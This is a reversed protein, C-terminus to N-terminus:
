RRTGSAVLAYDISRLPRHRDARRRLRRAVRADTSVLADRPSEPWSRTEPLQARVPRPLELERGARALTQAIPFAPSERPDDVDKKYAIGLLLVASGRVAKGRENLAHQLRDVVYYPMRSQDRRRARHVQHRRRVRAGEVVPLVSRAPHLARGLGARSQLAHLRVAQDRGRRAGGLRRHGHADYVVKLENVLAINVARFINETIKTAEAAAASSVRVVKGIVQAYLAEALDGADPDCGGVVKPITTTTYHANGPIRASPRSRSSSTRAAVCARRSRPDARVVEDTTGPYTTSELVVLQGPRLAAAIQEAHRTSTPSTRSARRPSRRPCASSSRTASALRAFDATASFASAASLPPSASPPSTSSTASAARDVAAVKAPDVDFGLVRFGREAFALALPLGVYGLGIIGIPRRALRSENCCCRVTQCTM